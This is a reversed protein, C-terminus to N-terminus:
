QPRKSPLAGIYPFYVNHVHSCDTSLDEMKRASNATPTRDHGDPVIMVGDVVIDRKVCFEERVVIVVVM